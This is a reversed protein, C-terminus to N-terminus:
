LAYSLQPETSNDVAVREPQALGARTDISLERASSQIIKFHPQKLLQNLVAVLKRVLAMLAVKTPKGKDKLRQYLTRLVPNHRSAVLAAMYLHRRLRPRGGTIKRTGRFIGSDCNYPAVGVLVAAQNRDLRGLEPLLGLVAMATVRGVGQVECLRDAARGLEPHRVALEEMLSEMRQIQKLLHRCSTQLSRTVAAPLAHSLRNREQKLLDVLQDRRLVLAYLQTHYVPLPGQSCDELSRTYATIVRADIADTKALIGQSRAYERVRRPNLKAFAITHQRLFECLAKEYGGTAELGVLPQGDLQRLHRLLLSFGKAQNAVRLSRGCLDVDLWDKSVDIGVHVIKATM